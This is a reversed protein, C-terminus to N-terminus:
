VYIYKGEAKKNNNQTKDKTNFFILVGIQEATARTKGDLYLLWSTYIIEM